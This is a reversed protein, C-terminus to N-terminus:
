KSEPQEIKKMKGLFSMLTIWYEENSPQSAWLVKAGHEGASMPIYQVKIRSTVDKVLETVEDAEAKSSTVYVPKALGKIHKAVFDKEDFYEGPSFAAVGLVHANENAIKLVLSATYSSGLLVINKDYKQVLYDIAALIDQEADLYSQGKKLKKAAAATENKIGNVEKGSRLDVAMCNFGFKNLKLATEAFEGRSSGAQHCLLIVPLRNDVPYWDATVTLGDKAPFTVTLQADSKMTFSFLLVIVCVYNRPSM